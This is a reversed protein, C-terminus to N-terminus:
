QPIMAISSIIQTAKVAKQKTELLLAALTAPAAPTSRQHIKPVNGM